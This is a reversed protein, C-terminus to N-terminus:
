ATPNVAPEEFINSIASTTDTFKQDIQAKQDATMSLDSMSQHLANIAALVQTHENAAIQQLSDLKAMIDDFLGVFKGGLAILNPGIDLIVNFTM